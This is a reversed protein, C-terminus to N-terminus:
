PPSPGAPGLEGEGVDGVEGCPEGGPSSGEYMRGPGARVGTMWPGATVLVRFTSPAPRPMGPVGGVDDPAPRKVGWTRGCSSIPLLWGLKSPELPDLNESAM